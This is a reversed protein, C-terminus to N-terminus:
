SQSESNGVAYLGNDSLAVPGIVSEVAFSVFPRYTLVEKVVPEGVIVGDNIQAVFGYYKTQWFLDRYLESWAGSRLQLGSGVLEEIYSTLGSEGGFANWDDEMILGAIYVANEDSPAVTLNISNDEQVLSVEFEAETVVPEKNEKCAIFLASLCILIFLRTKM